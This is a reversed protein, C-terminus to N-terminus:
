NMATRIPQRYFIHSGITATHAFRRSWDPRVRPTHFHTAGDTLLRPAGAMMAVAVRGARDWAARDGVADSLGDCTYSFQCGGNGRQNVVGCISKPFGADDVRNLIVEAVAAQGRISEGRAEHYLATALCKFEPGGKTAPQAALWALDYSPVDGPKAKRVAKAAPMVAIETLRAGSVAGLGSREQGLLATLSLGLEASPDNSQSVTMDANAGQALALLLCLGAAWCKLVSM